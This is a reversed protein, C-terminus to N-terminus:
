AVPGGRRPLQLAQTHKPRERKRERWITRILNAPLGQDQLEGFLLKRGFLFPPNSGSNVTVVQIYARCTM